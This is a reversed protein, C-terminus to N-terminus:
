ELDPGYNVTLRNIVKAAGGERANEAAARREAWTDVRGTLIAAGETVNVDVEDADVFPSWIMESRIDREIGWDDLPSPGRDFLALDADVHVAGRASAALDTARSAEFASDVSGTLAVHGNTVDVDIAERYLYPDRGFADRIAEAIADDSPAKAGTRVRALNRVRWVGATDLAVAAAARRAALSAVAGRLTVVGDRVSVTPLARGLRPDRQLAGIVAVRVEDDSLRDIPTKRRMEDRMFWSVELDEADVADVGDVWAALIARQKEIASGVHGSLEVEGDEVEVTLLLDDIWVSRAIIDRIETELEADPREGDGKADVLRNVVGRVGRVGAVVAEALRREHMSDVTGTLTVVGNAVTPEVEYAETAADYKLAAAVDAAIEADTRAAPVLKMRDVVATVGKISRARAVARERALLNDVLGSLTVVGDRVVVDIRHARVADDLLLHDDIAEAIRDDALAPPAAAAPLPLLCLLALLLTRRM